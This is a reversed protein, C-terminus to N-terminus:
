RCVREERREPADAFGATEETASGAPLTLAGPTSGVERHTRPHRLGSRSESWRRLADAPYRVHGGPMRFFLPGDQRARRWKKLTLPHVNLVRAVQKTTFNEETMLGRLQLM